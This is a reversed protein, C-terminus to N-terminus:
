RSVPISRIEHDTMVALRRRPNRDNTIELQKIITNSPFLQLEEILISQVVGKSNPSNVNTIRLIQGDTTGIFIMDYAKGATTLVQPDVAISIFRPTSKGTKFAIPAGHFSSVTEDMISHTKMFNLYSDSFSKSDNVCSGPRPSPIRNKSVSRWSSNRNGQEEFNGNFSNTIDKLSFACVASGEIGDKATTFTAYFIYYHIQSLM